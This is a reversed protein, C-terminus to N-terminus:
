GFRGSPMNVGVKNRTTAAEPVPLLPLPQVVEVISVGTVSADRGHLVEVPM